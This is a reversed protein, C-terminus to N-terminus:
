GGTRQGIAGSCGAPSYSQAPTSAGARMARQVTRGCAPSEDGFAEVARRGEPPASTRLQVGTRGDRTRIGNCSLVARRCDVKRYGHNLSFFSKM